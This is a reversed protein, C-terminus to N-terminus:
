FGTETNPRTRVRRSLAFFPMATAYDFDDRPVVINFSDDCMKLKIDERKVGPVSIELRVSHHEEDAYSCVEAPLKMKAMPLKEGEM